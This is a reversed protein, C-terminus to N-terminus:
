RYSATIGDLYGQAYASHPSKHRVTGAQSEHLSDLDINLIESRILGAQYGKEYACGCCKHRGIGGQDDPLHEFFDWYRHQDTCRAM